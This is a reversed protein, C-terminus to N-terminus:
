GKMLHHDDVDISASRRSLAVLISLGLAAEAAALVIVLFVIVQGEVGGHMRAFTIFVLNVANLMLELCMFMVILSRRVLVGFLGILFVIASLMLYQWAPVM